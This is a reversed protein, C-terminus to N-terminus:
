INGNSKGMKIELFNALDAISAVLNVGDDLHLDPNVPKSYDALLKTLEPDNTQQQLYVILELSNMSAHEINHIELYEAILAAAARRACVRSRGELGRSHADIASQYEKNFLQLSTNKM